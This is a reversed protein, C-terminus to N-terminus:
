HAMSLEIKGACAAMLLVVASIQTGIKETLALGVAKRNIAQAVLAQHREVLAHLPAYEVHANNRIRRKGVFGNRKLEIDGPAAGSQRDLRRRHPISRSACTSLTPSCVLIVVRRSNRSTTAAVAAM